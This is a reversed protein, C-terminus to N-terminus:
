EKAWAMFSKIAEAAEHVDTTAIFADLMAARDDAGMKGVKAKWLEVRAAHMKADKDSDWAEFEPSAQWTKRVDPSKSLAEIAPDPLDGFMRVIYPRMVSPSFKPAVSGVPKGRKATTTTDTAVATKSM